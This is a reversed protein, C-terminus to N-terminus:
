IFHSHCLTILESDDQTLSCQSLNILKDQYTQKDLKEIVLNAAIDYTEPYIQSIITSISPDIIKNQKIYSYYNKPNKLVKLLEFFVENKWPDLEDKPISQEIIRLAEMLTMLYEPLTNSDQLVNMQELIYLKIDQINKPTKIKDEVYKGTISELSDLISQGIIEVDQLAKLIPQSLDIDNNSYLDISVGLAEPNLTDMNNLMNSHRIFADEESQIFLSKYLVRSQNVLSDILEIAKSKKNYIKIVEDKDLLENSDSELLKKIQIVTDYYMVDTLLEIMPLKSLRIILNIYDNPYICGNLYEGVLYEIELKTNSLPNIESGISINIM